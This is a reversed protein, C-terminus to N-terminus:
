LLHEVILIWVMKKEKEKKEKQKEKNSTSLQATPALTPAKKEPPKLDPPYAFLSPKANSKFTFEPMNLDSNLGIFCTPEFAMPLFNLYPYWFWYQTFITMGVIAKM